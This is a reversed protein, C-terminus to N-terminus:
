ESDLIQEVTRDPLLEGEDERRYCDWFLRDIMKREEANVTPLIAKLGKIILERYQEKRESPLDENITFHFTASM